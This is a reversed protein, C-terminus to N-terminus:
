RNIIVETLPIRRKKYIITKSKKELVNKNKFRENYNDHKAISAKKMNSTLLLLM